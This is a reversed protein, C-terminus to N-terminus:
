RRGADFGTPDDTNVRAVRAPAPTIRRGAPPEPQLRAIRLLGAKEIDGQLYALWDEPAVWGLSAGAERLEVAVIERSDSVDVYFIM